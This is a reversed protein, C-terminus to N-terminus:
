KTTRWGIINNLNNKADSFSYRDLKFKFESIFESLPSYSNIGLVEFAKLLLDIIRGKNNQNYVASCLRRWSTQYVEENEASKGNKGGNGDVAILYVKKKKGPYSEKKYAELESNWQKPDQPNSDNRKAEIIVDVNDFQFIVDPEVFRSHYTGEIGELHPWFMVDKLSTPSQIDTPLESAERFINWMKEPPLLSLIEFVASTKMDEYIESPPLERKQIYYHIM